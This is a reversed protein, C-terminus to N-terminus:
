YAPASVMGDRYTSHASNCLWHPLPGPKLQWEWQSLFFFAEVCNIDTTPKSYVNFIIEDQDFTLQILLMLFTLFLIFLFHFSKRFSVKVTSHIYLYLHKQMFYDLDVGRYQHKSAKGVLSFFLMLIAFAWYVRM